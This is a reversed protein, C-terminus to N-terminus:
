NNLILIPLVLVILSILEFNVIFVGGRRWQRESTKEILM